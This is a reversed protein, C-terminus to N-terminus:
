DQRVFPFSSSFLHTFLSKGHPFYTLYYFRLLCPDHFSNQTDDSENKQCDPDHKGHCSATHFVFMIVGAGGGPFVVLGGRRGAIVLRRGPLM